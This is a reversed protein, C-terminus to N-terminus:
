AIFEDLWELFDRRAMINRLQTEGPTYDYAKESIRADIKLRKALKILARTGIRLAAKLILLAAVIEPDYRLRPGRGRYDYPKGHAKSFERVLGLIV